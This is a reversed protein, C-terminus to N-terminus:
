RLLLRFLALRLATYPPYRLPVDPWADQRVISKPNSFLEFGAKGHYRGMGSHGVGGFPLHRSGAHMVVDNVCGGGFPVTRLVREELERNRTFLYLALPKEHDRIYTLAEEVDEYRLLPLLPGFIEERMVPDDPRAPLVRPAIRLAARDADLHETTLGLLRDFAQETIIRPYAPNRLPDDGAMRRFAHELRQALEDRIREDAWVHDPAVCTQGANLLKGWAIRRAALEPDADHAVIVPSKGGLELCVPTLHRAAAEMVIRGVRTSGTYFIFDFREELLATAADIGGEVVTVHEPPFVAKILDHLAAATAPATESPKLVVCNGAAVAAVLPLLSLQFPYNWPSLILTTGLPERYVRSKGPWLAPPTPVRCPRMWTKLSHRAFRIEDLVPGAETAYAEAPSKGLDAHLAGLIHQERRLIEAHLAALAATRAERALTAGGGFWRRQAAVLATFSPHDEM